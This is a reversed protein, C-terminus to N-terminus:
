LFAASPLIKSDERIKVMITDNEFSHQCSRIGVLDKLRFSRKISPPAAASAISAIPMFCDLDQHPNVWKRELCNQTFKPKRHFVANKGM